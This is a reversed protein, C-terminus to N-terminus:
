GFQYFLPVEGRRPPVDFRGGNVRELLYDIADGFLWPDEAQASFMALVDLEMLIGDSAEELASTLIWDPSIWATPLAALSAADDGFEATRAASLGTRGARFGRGGHERGATPGCRRKLVRWLRSMVNSLKDGLGCPAKFLFPKLSTAQHMPVNPTTTQADFAGSPTTQRTQPVTEEISDREYELAGEVQNRASPPLRRVGRVVFCGLRTGIVHCDSAVSRELWVGCGWKSRLKLMQPGPDRWLVIEAFPLMASHHNRQYQRYYGNM